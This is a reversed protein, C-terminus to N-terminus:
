KVDPLKTYGLYKQKAKLIQTKVRQSEKTHSYAPHIAKLLKLVAKDDGNKIHSSFKRHWRILFVEYKKRGPNAFSIHRSPIGFYQITYKKGFVKNFLWRSRPIHKDTTVVLITEWQLYKKIIQKSYYANGITDRSKKELYILKSPFSQKTLYNKMVEAETYRPKEDLSASYGGSVIVPTGRFKKGQAVFGELREKTYLTPNLTGDTGGGLLIIVDIKKM